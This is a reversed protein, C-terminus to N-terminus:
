FNERKFHYSQDFHACLFNHYYFKLFIMKGKDFYDSNFIIKISM